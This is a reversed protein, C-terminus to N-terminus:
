TGRPSRRGFGFFLISRGGCVDFSRKSEIVKVVGVIRYNVEDEDM